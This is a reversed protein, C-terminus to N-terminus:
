PTCGAPAPTLRSLDLTGSLGSHTGGTFHYELRGATCSTFHLKASGVQVTQTPAPQDFVGGSADYIGINDYNTTSGNLRSQLTFWHQGGTGSAGTADPLFTYWAGFLTNTPPNLDIVLGQGSNSPDAWAGARAYAGLATQPAACTVDPVLRTLPVTGTRGDDFVYELTAHMCDTFTIDVKGVAAISTAQASDFRGGLTQYISMTAANSPGIRGQITYWNQAGTPSYTFWGGFLNGKSPGHLDPSVEIVFGQSDTAPNAWSGTLSFSNGSTGWADLLRSVDLSGLGTVPDYGKGVVYGALGGTISTPSAVSNNCLSATDASCDAIGSSQVTVDHFIGNAHTKALTYLMPNLNGQAGGNKQNLMAGIGAMSPASASTGGWLLFQFKGANPGSTAPVCSANSAAMCGFYGYTVSAGFSVDPVYRGADGPVGPGAQWSPKAVYTSVGGGTAAVTTGGNHDIPENWAGEPIYGKASVYGPRANTPNWYDDNNTGIGFQTGGVCTVHSSSCFINTSRSLGSTPTSFYTACDAAGGDGSAVFVSQGQMAAQAFYSDLGDAVAQSNLAECSGFSISIIPAILPEHDIAYDLTYILGDHTGVKGSVVLKIDAGPAVSAARLVDLTAESQDQVLDSPKDCTGHGDGTDSDSCSTAAAGPDTGDPPIIVTPTKMTIGLRDGFAQVDADSVRARGLIAISQGTGTIGQATADGLGYIKAFDGPTVFYSCVAGTCNSLAPRAGDTSATLTQGGRFQPVFRMESLGLVGEVAGSLAAPIAPEGGPAMRKGGGANAYWHLETAFARNVAAAPGSFRINMRSNSVAEVSLGQSALWNAIADIDAQTAGFRGGIESPTLWRHYNTSAPDQQEALLADFARQREPSRKLVLQLSSLLTSGAVKGRDNSPAAWAVRHGPLAARQSTDIRQTILNRVSADPAAHLLTAGFLGCLALALHPTNKKLSM